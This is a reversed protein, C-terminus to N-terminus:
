GAESPSGGKRRVERQGETGGDGERMREEM